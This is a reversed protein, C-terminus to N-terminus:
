KCFNHMDHKFKYKKLTHFSLNNPNISDVLKGRKTHWLEELKVLHERSIEWRDVSCVSCLMPVAVEKYKKRDLEKYGVIKKM